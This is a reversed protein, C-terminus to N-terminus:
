IRNQNSRGSIAQGMELQQPRHEYDPLSSLSETESFIKSIHQQHDSM